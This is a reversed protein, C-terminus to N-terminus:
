LMEVRLAELTEPSLEVGKGKLYREAQTRLAEPLTALASKLDNDEVEDSANQSAEVQNAEVRMGELNLRSARSRRTTSRDSREIYKQQLVEVSQKDQGYYCNLALRARQGTDRAKRGKALEMEAIVNAAEAETLDRGLKRRATALERRDRLLDQPYFVPTQRLLTMMSQKMLHVAYSSLCTAKVPDFLRIAELLGVYALHELDPQCRRWGNYKSCRSCQGCCKIKERDLHKNREWQKEAARRALDVNKNAYADRLNLWARSQEKAQLPRGDSDRKVTAIINALEPDLATKAIQRRSSLKSRLDATCRLHKYQSRLRAHPLSTASIAIPTYEPSYVAIDTCDDCTPSFPM